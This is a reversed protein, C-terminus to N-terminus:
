ISLKFDFIFKLSGMKSMQIIIDYEALIEVDDTNMEYKSVDHKLGFTACIIEYAKM